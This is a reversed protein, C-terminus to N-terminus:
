HKRKIIREDTIKAHKSYATNALRKEITLPPYFYFSPNDPNVRNEAVHSALNLGKNRQLQSTPM